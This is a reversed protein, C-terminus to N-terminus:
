RTENSYHFIAIRYKGVLLDDEYEYGLEITPRCDSSVASASRSITGLSLSPLLTPLRRTKEVDLMTPSTVPPLSSRPLASFMNREVVETSLYPMWIDIFRRTAYQEITRQL